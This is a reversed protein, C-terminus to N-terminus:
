QRKSIKRKRVMFMVAGFLSMIIFLTLIVRSTFEPAEPTSSPLPISVTGSPLLQSWPSPLAPVTDPINPKSMLPYNDTVNGYVLYLTNGIGSNGVETANPYKTLYDDWYNGVTGNDFSNSGLVQWNTGSNKSNNMFINFFFLNNTAAEIDEGGIALGYGDHGLGGNNAILNGYFVNYSGNGMLIGWLGAGEIINGTILNDSAPGEQSDGVVLDEGGNLITNSNIINSNANTLYICDERNITNSSITNNYIINSNANTLSIGTGAQGNSISNGALTNYSGSLGIGTTDNSLTNSIIQNYPGSCIIANIANTVYNESITQNSGSIVMGIENISDFNILIDNIQNGNGNSNIGAGGTNPNTITFNSINVNNANMNIVYTAPSPAGEINYLQPMTLITTQANEGILNISKDITINQSYAGSRVFVTDGASANGIAAQITSYDNPVTITRSAAKVTACPILAVLSTLIIFTFLLALHKDM